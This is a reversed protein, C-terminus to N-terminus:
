DYNKSRIAFYFDRIFNATGQLAFLVFGLMVATRFPALPPYWYTQISTEHVAWSHITAAIAAYALAFSIPFFFLLNSIVDVIAKARPSLRGYFVDVRIHLRYKHCYAWALAYLAGGVMLATEYNWMTPRNFAYRLIVELFVLLVLITAPWLAVRGTWETFADIVRLFVRM